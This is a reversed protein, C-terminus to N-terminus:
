PSGKQQVVLHCQVLHQSLARWENHVACILVEQPGLEGLVRVRSVVKVSM